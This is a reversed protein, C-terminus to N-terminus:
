LEDSRQICVDWKPHCEIFLKQLLWFNNGAAVHPDHVALILSVLVGVQQKSPM